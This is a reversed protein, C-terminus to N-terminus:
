PSIRIRMFGRNALGDSADLRFTRYEYGTPAAPLGTTVTGVASVPSNFNLLDTSGEVAYTIGDVTATPTGGTTPSFVPTGGAGDNGARVAITLLLERATGADNSDAIFSFVKPRNGGQSPDGGLAFEVFNSSGDADPDANPGV